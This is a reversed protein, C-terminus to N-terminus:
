FVNQTMDQETSARYLAHASRGPNMGRNSGLKRILKVRLVGADSLICVVWSANLKLDQREASNDRSIPSPNMTVDALAIIADDSSRVDGVVFRVRGIARSSTSMSVVTSSLVPGSQVPDSRISGSRVM